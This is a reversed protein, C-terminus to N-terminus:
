IFRVHSYGLDVTVFQGTIGTNTASCLSYVASSVDQLSPLRNFQTGSQVASIQAQSLNQRTMPTDIVGPLVANFLHGDRGLDNAASLVLGQLAAKSVGYSLKNQRSINQWISSVVCLRAPQSLCRERLLIHLSGLISLVNAQYMREHATADFDYVSDNGNMGQAWCVADFPGARRLREVGHTDSENLPNWTIFHEAIKTQRTVGIVQWDNERFHRAIASGISGSAGFLLLKPRSAITMTSNM